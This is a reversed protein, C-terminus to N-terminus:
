TKRRTLNQTPCKQALIDPNSFAACSHLSFFHVTLLLLQAAPPAAHNIYLLAEEM